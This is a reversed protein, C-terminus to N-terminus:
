FYILYFFLLFILGILVLNTRNVLDLYVDFPRKNSYSLYLFGDEKDKFKWYIDGILQKAQLMKQDVYLFLEGQYKQQMRTRIIQMLEEVTIDRPSLFRNKAVNPVNQVQVGSRREVIVPVKDPYQSTIKRM